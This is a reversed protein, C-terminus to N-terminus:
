ECWAEAMAKLFEDTNPFGTVSLWLADGTKGVHLPTANLDVLYETVFQQQRANM